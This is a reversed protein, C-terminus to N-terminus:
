IRLKKPTGYLQFGAWEVPERARGSDNKMMRLQAERVAEDTRLGPIADYFHQVFELACEESIEWLCAAVSGTGARCLAEPL